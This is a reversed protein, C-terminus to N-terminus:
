AKSCPFEIRLGPRIMADVRARYTEELNAGCWPCFRLGVDMCLTIPIPNCPLQSEVEPDVSRFQLVFMPRCTSDRAVIVAAGRRGAAHFNACFGLCCWETM